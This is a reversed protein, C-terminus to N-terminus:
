FVGRLDDVKELVYDAGAELLRDTLGKKDGCTEVVGVAVYGGRKAALIDDVCDGVYAMEKGIEGAVLDLAESDPKEKSADEMCKLSSFYDRVGFRKLVFEAEARPRGTAIGLKYRKRLYALVEKGVLMRENLIYGNWKDGLYIKQFEEIVKGRSPKKGSKRRILECAADWDNNFGGSNKIEQVDGTTGKVGFKAATELIAKRYSERVDVLVGDMDFAVAEM